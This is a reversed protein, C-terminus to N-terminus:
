ESPVGTTLGGDVVFEAGTCYSSEMSALFVVMSSVEAPLGYRARVNQDRDITTEDTVGIMPTAIAGPHVSNVRVGDPALELATSKTLGRVGFKSATYAHNHNVGQLGAVSSINIVAAPRATVLASRAAKIGLFAGTLNIDIVRRWREESFDSLPGGDLIGANNVLVNLSGFHELTAAVATDWDDARTVDLHTYAAGGGLEAALSAGAEDAIDGLMVRAGEDVFARAHSAGMGSAGGSILAVRGALRGSM